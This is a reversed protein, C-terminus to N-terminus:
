GFEARRTPLRPLHCRSAPEPYPMPHTRDRITDLPLSSPLLHSSTTAHPAHHTQLSLRPLPSSTTAHPARHSQLSIKAEEM